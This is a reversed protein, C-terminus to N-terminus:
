LEQACTCRITSFKVVKVNHASSETVHIFHSIYHHGKLSQSFYNLDIFTYSQKIGTVLWFSIFAFNARNFKYSLFELVNSMNNQRNELHISKALVKTVIISVVQKTTVMINCFRKIDSHIQDMLHAISCNYCRNNMTSCPRFSGYDRPSDRRHERQRSVTAIM